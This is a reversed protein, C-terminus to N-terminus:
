IRKRNWQDEFGPHRLLRDRVAVVAAPLAWERFPAGHRLAGPERELVPLYHWPNCVLQDRGLVRAHEAVLGGEAVVRVADATLRVPVVRGAWEAPVSYRNRGIQVLCLGSVRRAKEVYGDFAATVPRLRPQEEAFCEAITRGPRTPHGRGAL